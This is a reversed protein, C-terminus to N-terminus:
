LRLDAITRYFAMSNGYFAKLSGSENIAAQKQRPSATEIWRDFSMINKLMFKAREVASETNSTAGMVINTLTSKSARILDREIKLAAANSLGSIAVREIVKMGASHIADIRKHKPVNGILGSKASKVHSSIRKGRGKGVYFTLGNRPDILEYVYYQMSGNVYEVRLAPWDTAM